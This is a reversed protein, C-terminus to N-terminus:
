RASLGCRIRWEDTSPHTPPKWKTGPTGLTQLLAELTLISKWPGKSGLDHQRRKSGTDDGVWEASAGPCVRWALTHQSRGGQVQDQGSFPKSDEWKGLQPTPTGQPPLPPMPAARTAGSLGSVCRQSDPCRETPEQFMSAEEQGSTKTHQKGDPMSKGARALDTKQAEVDQTLNEGGRLRRGQGDRTSARRGEAIEGGQVRNEESTMVMQLTKKRM